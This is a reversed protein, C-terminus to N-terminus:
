KWTKLLEVLFDRFPELSPVYLREEPTHPHELTSGISVMDMGPYKAGILGCELGAHIAEVVPEKGTLAKYTDVGRKLLASNVDPEWSPYKNLTDCSGGALAAVAEMRRNIEKLESMVSSRQSTLFSAKGEGVTMWALNSSTQVLNEIDPSMKAVGHPTVLLTRLIRDRSDDSLCNNAAGGGTLAVSVGPDSARYEAALIDQWSAICKKLEDIKGAPAALVASADRCLANSAGSGGTISLLKVSFLDTMDTLIRAAMKLANGRNLNIDMGSHGGHLGGVTLTLVEYGGPLSEESVPFSFRSDAGGACGITFIGEDESDLNLLIRGEVFGEELNNAGVLGIEEDSTILIELPPHEVEPDTAIDMALAVAIGNDAGLSTGDGKIWDGDRVLKVADKTFDHDSGPLKECVMDSHGQLIVIPAKEYGPSAPVKILLNDTEDRRVQFGQSHAWDTLYRAIPGRNGSKRPITNIGEFFSLIRETKNM